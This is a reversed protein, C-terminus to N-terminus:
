NPLQSLIWKFSSNDPKYNLIRGASQEIKLRLKAKVDESSHQQFILLKCYCRAFHMKTDKIPFNNDYAIAVMDTYCDNAYSLTELDKVDTDKFNLIYYKGKIYHYFVQNKISLSDADIQLLKEFGDQRFSHTKILEKIANLVQYNEKNKQDQQGHKFHKM